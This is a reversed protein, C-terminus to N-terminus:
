AERDDQPSKKNQNQTHHLSGYGQLKRTEELLRVHFVHKEGQTVSRPLSLGGPTQPPYFSSGVTLSMESM